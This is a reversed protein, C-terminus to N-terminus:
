THYSFVGTSYMEPLGVALRRSSVICAADSLLWVIRKTAVIREDESTVGQV